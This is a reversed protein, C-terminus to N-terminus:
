LNDKSQVATAVMAGIEDNLPRKIKKDYKTIVLYPSCMYLSLDLHLMDIPDNTFEWKCDSNFALWWGMM